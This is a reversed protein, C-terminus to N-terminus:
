IIHKTTVYFYTGNMWNQKPQFHFATREWKLIKDTWSFSVNAELSPISKSSVGEWVGRPVSCSDSSSTTNKKQYDVNINYSALAILLVVALFGSFFILRAKSSSFYHLRQFPPAAPPDNPLPTYYHCPVNIHINPEEINWDSNAM